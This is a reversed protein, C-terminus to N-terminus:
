KESHTKIHFRTHNMDLRDCGGSLEYITKCHAECGLWCYIYIIHMNIVVSEPAVWHCSTYLLPPQIYVYRSM